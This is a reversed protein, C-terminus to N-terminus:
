VFGFGYFLICLEEKTGFDSVEFCDFDFVSGFFFTKYTFEIFVFFGSDILSDFVISRDIHSNTIIYESLKISDIRCWSEFCRDNQQHKQNKISEDSNFESNHRTDSPYDEFYQVSEVDITDFFDHFFRFLKFLSCQNQSFFLYELLFYFVLCIYLFLLCFRLLIWVRSNKSFLISGYIKVTSM